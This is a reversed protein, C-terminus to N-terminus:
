NIMCELSESFRFCRAGAPCAAGATLAQSGAPCVSGREGTCWQGSIIQYCAADDQLCQDKSSVQTDTSKCALIRDNTSVTSGRSDSSACASLLTAVIALVILPFVHPLGRTDNM